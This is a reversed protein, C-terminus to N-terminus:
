LSSDLIGKSDVGLLQKPCLKCRRVLWMRCEAAYRSLIRLTGMRRCYLAAAATGHRSMSAPLRVIICRMDPRTDPSSSSRLSAMLRSLSM